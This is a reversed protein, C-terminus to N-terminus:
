PYMPWFDKIHQKSIKRCSTATLGKETYTIIYATYAWIQHTVIVTKFQPSYKKLSKPLVINM